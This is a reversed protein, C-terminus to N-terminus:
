GRSRLSLILEVEGVPTNVRRAIEAPEYGYDALTYIEEYRRPRAATGAAAAAERPPPEGQQLSRAQQNMRPAPEDTKALAAELRAAARDAEAVLAQLACLKSDLQASLERATDHMRVEWNELAPSEDAPSRPAAPSPRPGQPPEQKQRAYYRTSRLLLLGAIVSAGAVVWFSPDHLGALLMM